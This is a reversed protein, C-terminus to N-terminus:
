RKRAPLTHIPLGLFVDAAESLTESLTPHPHVTLALDHAVTGMEVALAGEAILNEAGRGVLGVGLLRQTKRDFILKTLGDPANLTLARGSARWPLRSVEVDLGKQKAESETLGCWAIEPDTYVIAPIVSVDYAVPQGAIVEAAVKGEATAKHALMPNGAVDGVAFIKSDTTRRQEDVIVFGREDLQVSTNELGIQDSNPHRGISILVRDFSQQLEPVEGEFTVDVKDGNEEMSAVKTKLYVAEFLKQVSKMLPRSLEPDVGPLISDLMEVLTVKSGLSAYVSGLEMGIYGAGIVLLKEPIDVLDLAGTSDMIRSGPHIPFGKLEAPRSGTALIAHRFKVYRIDAGELRVSTSSTFTARGHIVEIERHKALTGLGSVLRDVVSDKWGRLQDLNIKPTGFTIGHSQAEKARQILAGTELLAKSPICGRLLCTGGLREGEEILVVDLGLDAARFAAAYGGPGGGIVAVQTELTEEGMVM